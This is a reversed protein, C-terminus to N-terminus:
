EPNPRNMPLKEGTTKDEIWGARDGGFTFRQAVTKDVVFHVIYEHGSIADFEFTILLHQDSDFLSFSRDHFKVEYTHKGPTVKVADVKKDFFGHLNEGDVSEFSMSTGFLGEEEHMSVTALNQENLGKDNFTRVSQGCGSILAVLMLLSLLFKM